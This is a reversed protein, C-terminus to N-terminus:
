KTPQYEWIFWWATKRKWLWAGSIDSVRIWLLRSADSVSWWEQILEWELSYQIIPKANQNDKWFKGKCPHNVRFRYNKILWLRHAHRANEIRTCWELNSLENNLKNGDIHNIELKNEPNPIFTIAKIRHFLFAKWVWKKCLRIKMYRDNEFVKISKWHHWCYSEVKHWINCIRYYWEYGPIDKWIEWELNEITDQM